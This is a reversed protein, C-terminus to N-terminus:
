LYLLADHIDGWGYAVETLASGSILISKKDVIKGGLSEYFKRGTNEELAWIVLNPFRSNILEEIVPKILKKGLGKKQYGELIYIAYVEAMYKPDNTQEEGGSSFGVIEGKDNEAVFVISKGEEIIKKWFVLRKDIELSNLYDDSIINKYTTKWSNVHVNAIGEADSVSAKRINM